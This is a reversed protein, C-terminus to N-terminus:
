NFRIKNIAHPLIIKADEGEVLSAVYADIVLVRNDPSAIKIKDLIVAEKTKGDHDVFTITSNIM